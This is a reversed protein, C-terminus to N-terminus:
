SGVGAVFTCVPLIGHAAGIEVSAAHCAELTDYAAVPALDYPAPAGPAAATMLALIFHPM